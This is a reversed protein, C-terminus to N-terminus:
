PVRHFIPSSWAREQQVKPYNGDCCGEYGARSPGFPGCTIKARSCQLAHWRCSPNELVRAYYFAQEDPNFDPDSWVSCLEDHGTGSRECTNPDVAAGGADGGIDHIAYRVQEGELWGKIIQIRELPVGPESDTGPDRMAWVAFRPPRDFPGKLEGGMPVGKAYGQEAFDPADCLNGPLDGGGFFRLVIRTGSTGYAERRRMAEFLADRRNEEAWLVAYGGPNLWVKDVLGAPLTERAGSGAGGHGQFTSEQVAGPTGMHTDTSAVMGYAFPNAGLAAQFRLGQSLADRVFDRSVLTDPFLGLTVSGLTNYPMKEFNCQEDPGMQPLCESSGKHQFVEVLPEFSARREVYEKDFPQGGANVPEFMLGASLNSNHPITLVDCGTKAKLCDKDLADWLQEEQSGDLYSFPLAPVEASRFIVNRHLNQTAPSASWEYSVFATFACEDSRDNAAQAERKVENWASMAASGCFANAETCPPRYGASAQSAGLQANFTLFASDPRERYQKCEASDYGPLGKTLCTTVLGLFEAHDTLAVFDLPRSLTLTRLPKGSSDYPPVGATEGRAFRYADAPRLRTGQLNADLSLATHVHLDGFFPERTASYRKCRGSPNATGADDTAAMGSDPDGGADAGLGSDSPVAGDVGPSPSSGGGCAIGLSLALGLVFEFRARPRALRFGVQSVLVRAGMLNEVVVAGRTRGGLSQTM